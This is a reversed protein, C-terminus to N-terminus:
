HTATACNPAATGMQLIRQPPPRTTRQSADNNNIALAADAIAALGAV